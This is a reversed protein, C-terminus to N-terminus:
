PAEEQVPDDDSSSVSEFSPSLLTILHKLTRLAHYFAQSIPYMQILHAPHSLYNQLVYLLKVYGQENLAHATWAPPSMNAHDAIVRIATFPIGKQAACRAVSGTEMDVCLAGTKRHCEAKEKPTLLPTPSAFVTGTKVHLGSTRLTKVLRLLWPQNVALPPHNTFYVKDALIITSTKDQPHLGGAIGISMLAQVGQVLLTQARYTAQSAVGGSCGIMADSVRRSIYKAEAQLGCIFGLKTM